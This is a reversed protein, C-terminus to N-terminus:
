VLKDIRVLYRLNFKSSHFDVQQSCSHMGTPHTGAARLGYAPTQRGPSPTQERPTQELPPTSGPLPTDAEPPHIGAHVSASGGTSLCVSTFINGQGLKTAVPLLYQYKVKDMPCTDLVLISVNVSTSLILLLKVGDRSNFICFWNRKSERIFVM